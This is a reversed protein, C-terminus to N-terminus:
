RVKKIWDITGIGLCKQCVLSGFYQGKKILLKGEGRGKCVPCFQEWEKPTVFTRRIYNHVAKPDVAYGRIIEEKM